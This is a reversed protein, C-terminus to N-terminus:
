ALFYHSFTILIWVLSPTTTPVCAILCRCFCVCGPLCVSLCAPLCAPLCFSLCASLCAPLFVPLFVSLCLFESRSCRLLREQLGSSLPNATQRVCTVSRRAMSQSERCSCGPTCPFGFAANPKSTTGTNPGCSFTHQWIQLITTQRAFMCQQRNGHAFLKQIQQLNGASNAGDHDM